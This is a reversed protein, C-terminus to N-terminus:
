SEQAVMVPVFVDARLISEPVQEPDDLFDYHIPADRLLLGADPVGEALVRDVLDEIGEYAGVHRVRLYDGGGLKLLRMPALPEAAESLRIACDFELEHPAAERHDGRPIGHLGIISEVRGAEMAWEFLQGYVQDLDSFAGRNRLAVVEFPQLSVVEVQLPVPTAADQRADPALRAAAEALHVAQGRLESPSADLADRFARAFAQPTEYGAAQAVAAIEVEPDALLHLARLLRLRAVTRGITEGTLARWLRHFHFSSLHAVGALTELDPLDDGREISRQLYALVDDVRRAHDNRTVTKM